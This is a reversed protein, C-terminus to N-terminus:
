LPHSPAASLADDADWDAWFTRFPALATAADALDACDAWRFLEVATAAACHDRIACVLRDFALAKAVDRHSVGPTDAM